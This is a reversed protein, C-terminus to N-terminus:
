LVSNLFAATIRHYRPTDVLYSVGHEAGPFTHLTVKDPAASCIAKSMECPVFTDAEGHILLIPVGAERVSRICDTERLDFGGYVKAGLIVFPKILWGPIPMSKGVQLIIDLPSSYPCDAVIAKVNEPLDLEAAMLVTAGGMSIGYLLIKVDKGFREVAYRVWCLLDQREKIGFSITRGGSKGHARQDVLLVNHGMSFSLDCGGCFDTLGSSRYGHFCIAVPAGEAVHYYRGSLTLGERSRITVPEYERDRLLGYVRDIEQRYPDYGPGSVTPTKEREAMPSFFVVRYAYYAGGFLVALVLCVILYLIM